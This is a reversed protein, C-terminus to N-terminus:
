LTNMSNSVDLIIVTNEATSDYTMSILPITTSLALALLAFFQLFFLANTVFKQFFTSKQKTGKEHMLFMVSPIKVDLPKPKILYSIILVALSLLAYFGFPNDFQM